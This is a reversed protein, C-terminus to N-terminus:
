RHENKYIILSTIRCGCDISAVFEPTEAPSSMKYATIKGSSCGTVLYKKFAGIGRVRKNGSTLRWLELGTEICHGSLDGSDEGM